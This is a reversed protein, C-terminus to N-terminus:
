KIEQWRKTRKKIDELVYSFWRTRSCGMLRKIKFKLELGRRLIRTRNM